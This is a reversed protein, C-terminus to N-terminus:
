KLEFTKVRNLTNAFPDTLKAEDIKRLLNQMEYVMSMLNSSIVDLKNGLQRIQEQTQQDNTTMPLGMMGHNPPPYPYTTGSASGMSGMSGASTWSATVSAHNQAKQSTVYDLVEKKAASLGTTVKSCQSCTYADNPNGNIHIIGISIVDYSHCSECKPRDDLKTYRVDSGTLNM